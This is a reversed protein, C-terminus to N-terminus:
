EESLDFAQGIPHINLTDLSVKEIDSWDWGAKTFTSENAIPRRAGESIIYVTKDGDSTVLTGDQLKISQGERFQEIEVSQMVHSKRSAYKNQRIDETAVIHRMGNEIYYYTGGPHQVLLGNPHSTSATIVSGIEYGAIEDKGIVIPEDPSFGLAALTERSEFPRLTDDVLLYVAEATDLISYNPFAIALGNEYNELVSPDVTVINDPNYRSTLATMSLFPRKKGLSILYVGGSEADQLLSGTPYEHGFYRNYITVFNKNGELHPTYTYLAATANNQIHVAEDDIFFTKGPKYGAVTYGLNILDAIYGDYLQLTASNIQKAFGKFKQISATEHNCDDCVGYGMAWDFQSSSPTSDEVLSQEKQLMTLIVKPSIGNRQAARWIIEAAYRARGDIDTAIYTALTGRDLVRQVSGLDLAFRDTMEQDSILYGPNFAFVSSPFLILALFIFIRKM